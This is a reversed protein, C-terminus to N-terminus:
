ADVVIPCLLLSERVGSVLWELLADMGDGSSM